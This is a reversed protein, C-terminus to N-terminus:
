AADGGRAAAEHSPRREVPDETRAERLAQVSSWTSVFYPVLVTVCIQLCRELGLEHHVLARGHNIAVLVVGVVLACKLARTVVTAQLALRAFETM